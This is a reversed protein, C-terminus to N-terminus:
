ELTLAEESGIRLHKCKGFPCEPSVMKRSLSKTQPPKNAQSPGAYAVCEGQSQERSGIGNYNTFIRSSPRERVTAVPLGIRTGMSTAHSYDLISGEAGFVEKLAAEINKAPHLGDTFYSM